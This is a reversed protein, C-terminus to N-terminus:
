VKASDSDSTLGSNEPAPVNSQTLLRTEAPVAAPPVAVREEGVHKYYQPFLGKAVIDNTSWQLGWLNGEFICTDFASKM